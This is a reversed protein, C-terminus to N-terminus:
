PKRKASGRSGQMRAADKAAEARNKPQKAKEKDSAAFPRSASSSEDVTPRKAAVKAPEPRSRTTQAKQRSTPFPWEDAMENRSASSSERSKGSATSSHRDLATQLASKPASVGAPLSMHRGDNVIFSAVESVFRRPVIVLKYGLEDLLTEVTSLRPDKSGEAGSATNRNLGTREALAAQSLGQDERITRLQVAIPLKPNINQM